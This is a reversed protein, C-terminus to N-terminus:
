AAESRPVLSEVPIGAERAIRIALPLSPTRAGRVIRSIQSQKVGLRSAFEAQTIGTKRLYEGLSQHKKSM